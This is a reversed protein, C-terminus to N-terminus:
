QSTVRRQEEIMRSFILGTRFAEQLFTQEEMDMGRMNSEMSVCKEYASQAMIRALRGWDVTGSYLLAHQDSTGENDHLHVSLLRDGLTLLHEFGEGGMNGHGSDYCLGLYDPPYESFLMRLDEFDDFPMNELAIRVAHDNAHRELDDLSRRLQMRKAKMDDGPEPKRWMHLIIVDTGLRAAMEIRNKVLEVGALREYERTSAWAKEVGHSAHLDVLKLGFEDLWRLIQDIEHTSYLFDTSWQHCWHVHSFGAEAIRRLYPEPCGSTTVYDTTMSLDM